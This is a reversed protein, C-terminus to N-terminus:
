CFTDHYGRLSNSFWGFWPGRTGQDESDFTEVYLAFNTKSLSSWVGFAFQENEAGLLPLALICRVFYHQGEVVCFDESLFHTSTSVVSNPSYAENGPWVDPKAYALDFLGHHSNGCSACVWAREHLLQWRPDDQIRM